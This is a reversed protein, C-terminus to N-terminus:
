LLRMLRRKIVDDGIYTAPGCEEALTIRWKGKPPRWLIVWVKEGCTAECKQIAAKWESTGLDFAGRAYCFKIEFFVRVLTEDCVVDSSDSTGCFQQTRRADHFGLSKLYKAAEREGRCGKQRSNVM